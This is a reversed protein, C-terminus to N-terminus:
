LCAAKPAAQAMMWGSKVMSIKVKKKPRMALMGLPPM